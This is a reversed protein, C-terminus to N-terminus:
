DKFTLKVEQGEVVPIAKFKVPTVEVFEDHRDYEVGKLQADKFILHKGDEEIVHLDNDEFYIEKVEKNM